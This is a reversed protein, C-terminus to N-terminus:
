VRRTPLETQASHRSPAISTATFTTKASGTSSATRASCAVGAAESAGSPAVRRVVRRAPPDRRAARRGALRHLHSSRLRARGSPAGRPRSRGPDSRPRRPGPRRSSCAATSHLVVIGQFTRRRPTRRPRSCRPGPDRGLVPIPPSTAVYDAPRIPRRRARPCARGTPSVSDGIHFAPAASGGPCSRPISAVHQPPVLAM